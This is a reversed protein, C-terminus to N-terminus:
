MNEVIEFWTKVDASRGHKTATRYLAWIVNPTLKRAWEHMKPILGEEQIRKNWDTLTTLDKIDYQKAFETQTRIELLGLVIDEDLGLKELAQRPQGRLFAPLSKWLVYTEFDQTRYVGKREANKPMENKM